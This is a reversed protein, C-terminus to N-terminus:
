NTLTITATVLDEFKKELNEKKNDEGNKTSEIIQNFIKKSLQKYKRSIGKINIGRCVGLQEYCWTKNKIM